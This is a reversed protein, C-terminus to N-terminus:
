RESEAHDGLEDSVTHPTETSGNQFELFIEIIDSAYCSIM